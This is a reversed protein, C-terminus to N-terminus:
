KVLESKSVSAVILTRIRSTRKEVSESEPHLEPDEEQHHMRGVQRSCHGDRNGQGWPQAYSSPGHCSDSKEENWGFGGGGITKPVLMPLSKLLMLFFVFSQRLLAIGEVRADERQSKLFNTTSSPSQINLNVCHNCFSNQPEVQWCWKRQNLDPMNCRQRYNLIM